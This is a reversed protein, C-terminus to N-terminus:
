ADSRLSIVAGAGAILVMGVVALWPVTEGWLVFAWISAFILLSYEFIAVFSADGVQYARFLLAIGILAGVSQVAIWFLTSATVPMWGRLPFGAVGTAADSLLVSGIAGCVMLMAFFVATLSMTSEGECWARTAVAGAAYFLGAVIPLFAVVDLDSPDPRIVLLTGGFGVAVAAWRIPGVSKGQFVVSILVVFLPATFLGAVAIGIPIIALCGFYLIMAVTVLASRALVAGWKQPRVTIFGALAAIGIMILVFASRLLHFQALSSDATVLRLLNDSAGLTFMAVLVLIAALGPASAYPTM